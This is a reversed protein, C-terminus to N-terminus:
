LIQSDRVIKAREFLYSAALKAREYDDNPGANPLVFYGLQELDSLKLTDFDDELKRMLYNREKVIASYQSVTLLKSLTPTIM